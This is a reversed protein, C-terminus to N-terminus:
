LKGARRRVTGVLADGNPQEDLTLEKLAEDLVRDYAAQCESATNLICVHPAIEAGISRLRNRVIAYEAVILALADNGLLVLGSKQAYELEKLKAQYNEKIREAEALSHPAHGQDIVIRQAADDPTEGPQLAETAHNRNTDTRRNAKRWPGKVVGPDLTGDSLQQLKGAKIAKQIATRSLEARRAFESISIGTM